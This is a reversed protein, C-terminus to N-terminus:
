TLEPPARQLRSSRPYMITHSLIQHQSSPTHHSPQGVSQNAMTRPISPQPGVLTYAAGHLLAIEKLIKGCQKYSLM